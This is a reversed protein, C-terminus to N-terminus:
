VYINGGTGCVSREGTCGCGCCSTSVTGGLVLFLIIFVCCGIDCVLIRNLWANLFVFRLESLRLRVAMDVDDAKMQRKEKESRNYQIVSAHLIASSGGSVSVIQVFIITANSTWKGL